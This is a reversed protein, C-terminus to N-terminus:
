IFSTGQYTAVSSSTGFHNHQVSQFRTSWKPTTSFGSASAELLDVRGQAGLLRPLIVAATGLIIEDFAEVNLPEEPGVYVTRISM